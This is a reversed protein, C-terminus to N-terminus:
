IYSKKVKFNLLPNSKIYKKAQKDTDFALHYVNEGKRKEFVEHRLIAKSSDSMFLKGKYKYMGNKLKM